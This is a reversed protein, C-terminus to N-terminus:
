VHWDGKWVRREAKSIAPPAKVRGPHSVHAEEGEKEREWWLPKSYYGSVERKIQLLQSILAPSNSLGASVPVLVSATQPCSIIIPLSLAGSSHFFHIFPHIISHILVFSLLWPISCHDPKTTATQIFPRPTSSSPPVAPYTWKWYLAWRQESLRTKGRGRKEKIGKVLWNLSKRKADRQVLENRQSYAKKNEQLTVWCM